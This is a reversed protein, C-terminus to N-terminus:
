GTPRCACGTAKTSMPLTSVVKMGPLLLKMARATMNAHFCHSHLIDPRFKGIERRGRAMAAAFSWPTKGMNLHTADLRTPWEEAVPPLLALVAVAHGRKAMREALMLAQREAGGIGLSTVLYAIRM